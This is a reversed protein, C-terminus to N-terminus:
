AGRIRVTGRVPSAENPVRATLTLRWEGAMPLRAHLRYIGNGEPEAPGVPATMMFTAAKYGSMWMGLQQDLIEADTVSRNDPLHVLRVRLQTDGQQTRVPSGVPEFRYSESSTQFANACGAVVAAFAAVRLPILASRFM